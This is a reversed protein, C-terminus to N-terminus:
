IYHNETICNLMNHSFAFGPKTQLLVRPEIYTSLRVIIYLIKCSHEHIISSILRTPVVILHLATGLLKDTKEFSNLLNLLVPAFHLIEHIM